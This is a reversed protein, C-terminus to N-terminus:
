NLRERLEKYALVSLILLVPLALYPWNFIQKQKIGEKQQSKKM